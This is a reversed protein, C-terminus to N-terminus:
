RAAVIAQAGHGLDRVVPVAFRDAEKAQGRSDGGCKGLAGIGIDFRAARLELVLFRHAVHHEGGCRPREAEGLHRAERPRLDIEGLIHAASLRDDEWLEDVDFSTVLMAAM